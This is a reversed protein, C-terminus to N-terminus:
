GFDRGDIPGLLLATAPLRRLEASINASTERLQSLRERVLANKTIKKSHSSSNIAAITQGNEDLVPVALSVVGYALEDEVAAYGDRRAAAVLTAIRKPNTETKDTLATLEFASLLSRVVADSRAALLVRGMATAYAPFRSGVHAELRLLSRTSARALYVIDTGDLVTLSAADGTKSALDTLHGISLREVNLSGLYAAGLDLIRPRLFFRRHRRGVYGLAELTLLCRRAVAASLEATQAVESLTLAPHTEDFARLVRIGKELGDMSERRESM